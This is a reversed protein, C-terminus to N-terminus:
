DPVASRFYLINEDKIHSMKESFKDSGTRRTRKKPRTTGFKPRWSMFEKTPSRGAFEHETLIWCRAERLVFNVPEDARSRIFGRDQLIKFSAAAKDKGMNCRKAAQRVSLYLYGNNKGHFLCYLELLLRVEFPDLSRFAESTYMWRFWQIYKKDPESRGNKMVRRGRPSKAQKRAMTM